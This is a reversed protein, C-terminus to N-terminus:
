QADYISYSYDSASQNSGFYYSNISAKELPFDAHPQRLKVCLFWSVFLQWAIEVLFHYYPDSITGM